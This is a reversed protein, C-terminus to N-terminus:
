APTTIGSAGYDLRPGVTRMMHACVGVAARMRAMSMRLTRLISEPGPGGGRVRLSGPRALRLFSRLRM